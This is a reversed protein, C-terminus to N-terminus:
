YIPEFYDEIKEEPTKPLRLEDSKEWRKRM